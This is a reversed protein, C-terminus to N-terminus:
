APPQEADNEAPQAPQGPQAPESLELHPHHLLKEDGLSAQDTLVQSTDLGTM